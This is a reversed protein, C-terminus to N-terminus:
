STKSTGIIKRSAHIVEGEKGTVKDKVKMGKKFALGMVEESRVRPKPAEKLKELGWISVTLDDIIKRHPISM